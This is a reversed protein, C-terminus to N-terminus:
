QCPHGTEAGSDSGRRPHSPRPSGCGPCLAPSIKVSSCRASIGGSCHLYRSRHYAHRPVLPMGGKHHSLPDRCVLSRRRYSLNRSSRLAIEFSPFLCDAFRPLDRICSPQGSDRLATVVRLGLCQRLGFRPRLRGSFLNKRCAEARCPLWLHSARHPFPPSSDFPSERCCSPLAM